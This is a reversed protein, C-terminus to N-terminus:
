SAEPEAGFFAVYRAVDEVVSPAPDVFSVGVASSGARGERCWRIEAPVTAHDGGAPLTFRVQVKDGASLDGDVFVRLGGESIDASRGDHTNAGHVLRVPTVYSARVTARRMPAPESAPPPETRRSHMLADVMDSAHPFRDAPASLAALVTDSLSVPVDECDAPAPPTADKTPLTGTLCEYLIAGLAYVDSRPSADEGALREPAAYGMAALPGDMRSLPNPGLGFSLLKAAATEFGRERERDRRGLSPLFVVGPHLGAHMVDLEHALSLAGALAVGIVLTEEAPLCRRAGLADELTRGDLLETVMWPAGDDSADLVSVVARHRCLSLRRADKVFDDRLAVDTSRLQKLSVTRRTVAHEAIYVACESNGSSQRHIRYRGDIMAM